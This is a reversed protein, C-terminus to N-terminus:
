LFHFISFFLFIIFISIEKGRVDLLSNDADKADEFSFPQLITLQFLM